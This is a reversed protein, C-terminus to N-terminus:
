ALEREFDLFLQFLRLSPHSRQSADLGAFGASAHLTPADRRLVLAECQLGDVGAPGPPQALSEPTLEALLARLRGASAAPLPLDRRRLELTSADGRQLEALFPAARLAIQPVPRLEVRILQLGGHPRAVSRFLAIAELEPDRALEARAASILAELPEAGFRRGLEKEARRARLVRPSRARFRVLLFGICASLGLVISGGTWGFLLMSLASVLGGSVLVNCGFSSSLPLMERVLAADELQRVDSGAHELADTM